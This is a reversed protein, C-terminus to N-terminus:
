NWQYFSEEIKVKNKRCFPMLDKKNGSFLMFLSTKETITTVQIDIIFIGCYVM